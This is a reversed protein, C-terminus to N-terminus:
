NPLPAAIVERNFRSRLEQWLSLREPGGLRQSGRKRTLWFGQGNFSYIPLLDTRKSAPLISDTFNDLVLPEMGPEAYYGLIMHPQNLKLSKVYILRMKEDPIDLQRLTFYKATAFDECDGGNSVLMEQPSAWYDAKGWHILDEAFELRNFFSNVAELKQMEPVERKERMLEHWSAIRSRGPDFGVADEVPIIKKAGCGTLALLIVVPLVASILLPFSKTKGM